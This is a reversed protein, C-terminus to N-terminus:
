LSPILVAIAAILAILLWLSVTEIMQKRRVM